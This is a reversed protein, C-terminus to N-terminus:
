ISSHSSLRSKRNNKRPPPPIFDISRPSEHMNTTPNFVLYGKGAEAGTKKTKMLNYTEIDYVTPKMTSRWRILIKPEEKENNNNSNGM